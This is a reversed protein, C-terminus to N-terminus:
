FCSTLFKLEFFGFVEGGGVCVSLIMRYGNRLGAGGGIM